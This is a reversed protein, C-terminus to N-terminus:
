TLACLHGGSNSVFWLTTADFTDLRYHITRGPPVLGPGVIIEM